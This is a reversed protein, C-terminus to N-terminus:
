FDIKVNFPIQKWLESHGKLGYTCYVLEVLPISLNRYLNEIVYIQTDWCRASPYAYKVHVISEILSEHGNIQTDGPGVCSIQKSTYM